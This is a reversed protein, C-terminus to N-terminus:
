KSVIAGCLRRHVIKLVPAQFDMTEVFFWVGLHLSCEIQMQLQKSLDEAMHLHVIEQDRGVLHRQETTFIEFVKTKM